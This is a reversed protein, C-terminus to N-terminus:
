MLKRANPYRYNISALNVIKLDQLKGFYPVYLLCTLHHMLGGKPPM